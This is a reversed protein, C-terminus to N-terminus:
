ISKVNVQLSYRNQGLHISLKDDIFRNCINEFDNNLVIFAYLFFNSNVVYPFTFANPSLGTSCWVINEM